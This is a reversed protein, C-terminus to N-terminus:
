VPETGDAPPPATRLSELEALLRGYALREARVAQRFPLYHPDRRALAEQAAALRLERAGALDDMAAVYGGALLKHDLVEAFAREALVGLRDLEDVCRAPATEACGEDLDHSLSRLTAGLEPYEWPPATDNRCGTALATLATLAACAAVARVTGAGRPLRIRVRRCSLFLPTM